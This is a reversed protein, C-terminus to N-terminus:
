DPNSIFLKGYTTPITVDSLTRRNCGMRQVGTGKNLGFAVIAHQHLLHAFLQKRGDVLCVDLFMCHKLPQEGGHAPRNQADTRTQNAEGRERKKKM